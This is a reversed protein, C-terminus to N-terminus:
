GSVSFTGLLGTPPAAPSPPSVAAPPSEPPPSAVTVASVPPPSLLAPVAVAPSAAAITPAPTPHTAAASPVAATSPQPAASTPSCECLFYEFISSICWSLSQHKDASCSLSQHKDASCLLSLKNFAIGIHHPKLKMLISSTRFCVIPPLRGHSLTSASKPTISNQLM